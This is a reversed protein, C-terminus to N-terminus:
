RSIANEVTLEDVLLHPNLRRLESLSFNILDLVSNQITRMSDTLEVHLEIVEPSCGSLTEVVSLHFRPWLYLQFLNM